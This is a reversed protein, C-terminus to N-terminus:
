KDSSVLEEKLEEARKILLGHIKGLDEKIVILLPLWFLINLGWFLIVSKMATRLGWRSAIYAAILPGLAHGLLDMVSAMSVMTGRHEPLNVDTLTSYWNPNVGQNLFVAGAVAAIMVVVGPIDLMALFPTKDPIWFDSKIFIFM